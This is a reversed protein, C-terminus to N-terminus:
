CYVKKGGKMYYRGGKPGIHMKRKANNSSLKRGGGGGQQCDQMCEDFPRENNTKCGEYCEKSSPMRNIDSHVQKEGM